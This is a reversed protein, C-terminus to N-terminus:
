IVISINIFHNNVHVYMNAKGVSELIMRENFSNKEKKKAPDTETNSIIATYDSSESLYFINKGDQVDLEVIKSRKPIGAVTKATIYQMKWYTFIRLLGFVGVSGAIASSIPFDRLIDVTMTTEDVLHLRSNHKYVISKHNGIYSYGTNLFVSLTALKVLPLIRM